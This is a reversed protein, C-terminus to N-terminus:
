VSKRAPAMQGDPRAAPPPVRLRRVISVVRGMIEMGSRVRLAPSHSSSADLVLEDDDRRLRRVLQAGAVRVLVVDGNEVADDRVPEILLLDGDRIGEDSLGDGSMAVMFTGTAGALRRDLEFADVAGHGAPTARDQPQGYCPVTITRPDMELGLLRVGRSRAPDREIWGKRALSQLLESVTKTSKITFRRGIERISPQYTNERLYEVLYDLVRRELESLPEPM